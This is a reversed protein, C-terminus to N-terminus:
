VSRGDARVQRYYEDITKKWGADQHSHPILFATVPAASASASASASAVPPAAASANALLLAFAVLAFLGM